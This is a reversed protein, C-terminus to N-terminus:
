AHVEKQPGNKSRERAPSSPFEQFATLVARPHVDNQANRACNGASKQNLVATKGPTKFNDRCGQTHNQPRNDQGHQTSERCISFLAVGSPSPSLFSEM